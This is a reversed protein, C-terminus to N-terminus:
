LSSWTQIKLGLMLPLMFRLWLWLGAVGALIFRSFATSNLVLDHQRYSCYDHKDSRGSLYQWGLIYNLRAVPKM